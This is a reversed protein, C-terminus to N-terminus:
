SRRKPQVCVSLKFIRHKNKATEEIEGMRKDLMLPCLSPHQVLPVWRFMFEFADKEQDTIRNSARPEQPQAQQQEDGVVGNGINSMALVQSCALMVV